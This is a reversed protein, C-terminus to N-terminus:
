PQEETLVGNARLECLARYLHTRVTGRGIEMAAAVEDLSLGTLYRLTFATSQQAPLARLVRALKRQEQTAELSRDPTASPDAEDLLFLGRVAGWLKRRRLLTM